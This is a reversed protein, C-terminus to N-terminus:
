AGDDAASITYTVELTDGNDVGKASAFDAVCLLINSGNAGTICSAMMAGAVTAASTISFSAKNASNTISQGSASAEVYTVRSAGTFPTLETWGAHSSLTDGAATAGTGKLGVFWNTAKSTGSLVVNLIHNLGQNTVINDAKEAWKLRGDEGFCNIEFVGGLKVGSEYNFSNLVKEVNSISEM